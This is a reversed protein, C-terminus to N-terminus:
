SDPLLYAPSLFGAKPARPHHGGGAEPMEEKSSQIGQVGRKGGVEGSESATAM